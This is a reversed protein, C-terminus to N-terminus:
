SHAYGGMQFDNLHRDCACVTERESVTEEDDCHLRSATADITPYKKVTWKDKFIFKNGIPRKREREIDVSGIWHAFENLKPLKNM